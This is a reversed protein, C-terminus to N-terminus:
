QVVEQLGKALSSLGSSRMMVFPKQYRKCIQKVCLCAYHSVCDVPCLVVDANCLLKPLMARSVERGGDHHAFRGGYKEVMQRYHPVMKQQGGVYLVTKGCLDPGPCNDIGCEECIPDTRKSDSSSQLLNELLGLEKQLILNEADLQEYKENLEEVNQDALKILDLQEREQSRMHELQAQLEHNNATLIAREKELGDVRGKLVSEKSEARLVILEEKLQETEQKMEAWQQRQLQLDSIEELLQEKEILHLERESRIVETYTEARDRLEEVLARENQDKNLLEYSLMHVEGYIDSLLNDSVRPHTMVAWYAGPVMGKRVHENWLVKVEEDTHLKSYHSIIIRFKDDLLKHLVRSANSRFSSLTVLSTHIEFESSRTSLNFVKKRTLKKLGPTKLCTGLVSCHFSSHIEWLKKRKRASQSTPSSVLENKM